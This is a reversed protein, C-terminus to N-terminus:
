KKGRSLNVKDAARIDNSRSKYSALRDPISDTSNSDPVIDRMKRSGSRLANIANVREQRATKGSRLATFANDRMQREMELQLIQERLAKEQQKIEGKVKRDEANRKLAAVVLPGGKYTGIGAVVLAAAIVIIVMTSPSTKNTELIQFNSNLVDQTQAENTKCAEIISERRVFTETYWNSIKARVSM